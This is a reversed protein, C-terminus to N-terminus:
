HGYRRERGQYSRIARLFDIRRFEPWLADCFYYESYAAQWLFFGSLRVEGSTRIIFDPDPIGATYLCDSIQAADLKEAIDAPSRHEAEAQQLLKKIGDVIEERGGYALAINLLMGDHEATSNELAESAVVVAEPLKDRQGIVKVRVKNAKIRPHTILRRSERVFLDLLYEVEATPRDFNEASFVFVTVHAIGLELCWELLEHVKEVGFEHGQRVDLGIGRAFRRNGDLILGIHAPVTHESVQTVLKKEYWWYLPHSCTRIVTRM